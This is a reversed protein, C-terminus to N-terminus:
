IAKEDQGLVRQIAKVIETLVVMLSSGIIVALWQTASLHSVHFLDNFGPVVITIMLLLFAIPIAWNFTRNKFAGVTFISQYVSKVNFAHVLQILGLTAFAMTLADEHVMRNTAHEPFMLAWGYVGLVLVTQFIGQYIIAGMVGGDFFNSKRGRPKHSMVGPEAPEVGLAIAPLTDTVLNIWLLHVPQLVDWGFLTAFFITFVEAMNASLLYQISKQINSFVKRGEEVAVIITAFNDDALVMDSAGKSVETGTIGMGIGIDATKLSPADNVGDGTMAVVKGENQWAKVIRVKHEPSVRAYVSYQKFVKQFEEDSLENLEAGTFVHDQGDDEIIGLRKAIAEATDQHDGTIMIPRIGAEKAVAVAKAAEPREPDIMGVLGSFILDSEIIDSELAPVESVYKYAMMLVRLAKRALDKNVALIGEKEEATIDRVQGNEEIRTVRKLLQDPAGKVAVFYKGDAEKHITSMLKRESDFPLEAVRPEEVLAERIDFSHDLGFQVLATETPDGILKGNPDIKTDNAFNMIRLTNNDSAIDSAASQLEGNTYVKEVTMQNMTLTGTKDSAIIETSGLTEVAPLKRVISNRKALTTTGMSLVITVIAPLGEPIAAVALAVSTMLGEIPSEGRVFVGVIFTVIAIAVVLYTLVKSLQNLNQKLPTDTEDANALMDAIKGVETYMGTNVVVGSGRGYTVNSNQYAMNVRDGIGADAAVEVSLDKEVPVSEGTLAAEEIKLSAAELLRMDAPVVDGAELMVIDGPVLERSDIEVIHGNRRVRAIQSSMDKLAEIAAEAQGEQYVGFAANLIVVALIILADTLGESGETVVSLAAAVLLIIIMLDKFQDLFKALLSRKQSEELENHGYEDLRKQAEATSLGERSSQLEDLTEDKGQTYFLAKSQEKFLIAEEEPRM